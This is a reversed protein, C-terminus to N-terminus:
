LRSVGASARPYSETGYGALRAILRRLYRVKSSKLLENLHQRM